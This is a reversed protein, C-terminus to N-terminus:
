DLRVYVTYKGCYDCEQVEYGGTGNKRLYNFAAQEAEDYSKYWGLGVNRSHHTGGEDCWYGTTTPKTTTTTTKSTSIKKTTTHKTSKNTTQKKITSSSQEKKTTKETTTIVSKTSETITEDQASQLKSETTTSFSTTTAISTKFTEVNDKKDCAVLVTFNLILICISIAYKKM